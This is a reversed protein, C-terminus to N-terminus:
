GGYFFKSIDRGVNNEILFKGGPHVFMYGEVDLVLDDLLILKRGEEIM